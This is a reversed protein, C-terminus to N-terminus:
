VEPDRPIVIFLAARCVWKPLIGERQAPPQISHTREWSSFTCISAAPITQYSVSFLDRLAVGINLNHLSILKLTTQRFHSLHEESNSLKQTVAWMESIRCLRSQLGFFIMIRLFYLFVNPSKGLEAAPFSKHWWTLFFFAVWEIPKKNSQM